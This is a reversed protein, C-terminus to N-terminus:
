TAYEAIAFCPAPVIGLERHELPIADAPIMPTQHRFGDLEHAGCEREDRALRANDLTRIAIQEPDLEADIRQGVRDLHQAFRERFHADVLGTERAVVPEIQQERVLQLGFKREIADRHDAIKGRRLARERLDAVVIRRDGFAELRKEPWVLNGVAIVLQGVCGLLARAELAVVRPPACATLALHGDVLSQERRKRVQGRACADREADLPQEHTKRVGVVDGVDDRKRERSAYPAAHAPLRLRM